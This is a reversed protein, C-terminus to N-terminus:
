LAGTAVLHATYLTAGVAIAAQVICWLIEGRTM